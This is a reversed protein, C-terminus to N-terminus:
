KKNHKTQYNYYKDFLTLDEKKQIMYEPKKQMEKGYFTDITFSDKLNLINEISSINEQLLDLDNIGLCVDQVEQGEDNRYGHNLNPIMSIAYEYADEPNDSKFM